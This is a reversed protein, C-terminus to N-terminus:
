LEIVADDLNVSLLHSYSLIYGTIDFRVGTLGNSQRNLATVL